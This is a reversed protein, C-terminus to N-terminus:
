DKERYGEKIGVHLNHGAGLNVFETDPYLGQCYKWFYRYQKIYLEETFSSPLQKKGPQFAHNGKYIPTYGDLGCFMVRKAKLAAAFLIMRVGIGLRGYFNTHMFFYKEYSDFEHNFWKNHVEFGLHPKYKKRYSILEGDMPDVESMLMALDIKTDRLIPNYFFHNCSWLYDYEQQELNLNLTSPGGGLILVDKNNYEKFEPIDSYVIKNNVVANPAFDKFLTKADRLVWKPFVITARDHTFCQQL